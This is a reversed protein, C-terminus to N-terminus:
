FEDIFNKLISIMEKVNVDQNLGEYDAYDMDTMILKCLSNMTPAVENNDISWDYDAKYIHANSAIEKPSFNGKWNKNGYDAIDYFDEFTILFKNINM